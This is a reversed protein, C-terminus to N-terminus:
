VGTELEALLMAIEALVLAAEEEEEDDVFPLIDENIDPIEEFMVDMGVVVLRVIELELVKDEGIM